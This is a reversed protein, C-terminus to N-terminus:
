IQIITAISDMKFEWNWNKPFQNFVDALYWDDIGEKQFGEKIESIKNQVEEATIEDVKLIGYVERNNTCEVLKAIM